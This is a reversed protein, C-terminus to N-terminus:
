ELVDTIVVNKTRGESGPPLVFRLDRGRGVRSAAVYLQGHGFVPERLYVAVRRLTQGQAKNITMAFAPRIPFQRRQWEFPFADDPPRMTVRPLIVRRGAESGCAVTAELLRGGHVSVVLLRTGNCLGQAPSINRLLIVPMGPKLRLHHPPFGPVCLGHLYEQPVPLEQENGVTDDASLCDVALGPFSDTVQQNIQDVANNTPALVARAAMSDPETFDGFLWDIVAPLEAEMVLEPPVTIRGEADTPLQGNGLQLLWDCFWELEARQDDAQALRARMNDHLRHVQFHHWLPSRRLCADAIGAQNAHKVVPLVQRFDGGLVIVKGGFPQDSATLDRLTRDLAEIHYRHAMPAEDMVILRTTRILQALESQATINLMSTADPRLPAKFRSHFTRGNNLLTAAIGSFAVALAVLNQARVAALLTNFTFTKGTGGPADVFVALAQRDRVAALITEVVQRQAPLLVPLRQEVTAQLEGRDFNLEERMILPLRHLQEAQDLAAAAARQQDPVPPLDFDTLSKGARQLTEEISLLVLSTVLDPQLEPHRHTFDEGMDAQYRRLLAAPDAPACFLLIIVFLQRIQGPMSTRVADALVAAWEGDDQLLGRRLCAEQNTACVEGDVTRLDTFATAGPVHHLLVRLYFVDGHRPTLSVVRGITPSALVNRRRFWQKQGKDWRYLRPFEPYLVQLCGPDEAASERNYHMWATLQTRRPEGAVAQQEEGPQFFILQQHELHVQLAIVAPSRGSMKFQFLHWCAESAGISRLDRFATVEDEGARILQDARVMQRDSGKYVYMFIYKVGDVSSCVEINVHGDYKLSLLPNYPVVWQNTVLRGRHEVQQGGDDPGRRRYQPYTRDERWLTEASFPKPYRKTCRGDKMCAATPRADGCENHVMSNLVIQHLRASQPSETPDPLEASVILDVDDASRPRDEPRLILLM